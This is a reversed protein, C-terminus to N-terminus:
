TPFFFTTKVVEWSADPLAVCDGPEVPHLRIRPQMYALEQEFHFAVGASLYIEIPPWHGIGAPETLGGLGGIHDYHWHTIFLRDVSRIGERELQSDLDPGADILVTEQGLLALSSRTRRQEPHRRAVECTSCSCFFAPLQLAAATGLFVLEPGAEKISSKTLM